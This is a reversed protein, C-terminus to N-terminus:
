ILQGYIRGLYGAWEVIYKLSGDFPYENIYEIMYGRMDDSADNWFMKIFEGPTLQEAYDEYGPLMISPNDSMKM